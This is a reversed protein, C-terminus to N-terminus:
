EVERIAILADQESTFVTKGIVGLPVYSGSDACSSWHLGIHGTFKVTKYIEKGQLDAFYLMRGPALPLKVLQGHEELDEYYALKDIMADITAADYEEMATGHVYLAPCVASGLLPGVKIRQTLRDM